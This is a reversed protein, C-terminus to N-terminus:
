RTPALRLLFAVVGVSGGRMSCGGIWRVFVVGFGSHDHCGTSCDPHLFGLFGFAEELREFEVIWSEIVHFSEFFVVVFRM